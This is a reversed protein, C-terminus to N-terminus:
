GLSNVLNHLKALEITGFQGEVHGLDISDDIDVLGVLVNFLYVQNNHRIFLHM